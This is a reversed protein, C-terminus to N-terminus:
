LFDDHNILRSDLRDQPKQLSPPVKCVMGAEGTNEKPAVLAVMLCYEIATAGGAFAQPQDLTLETDTM